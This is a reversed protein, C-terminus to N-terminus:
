FQSCELARIKLMKTVLAYLVGSARGSRTPPRRTVCPPPAARSADCVSEADPEVRVEEPTEDLFIGANARDKIRLQQSFSGIVAVSARERVDSNRCKDELYVGYMSRLALMEMANIKNKDKM